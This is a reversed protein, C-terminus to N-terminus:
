HFLYTITESIEYVIVKYPSFWLGDKRRLDCTTNEILLFYLDFAFFFHGKKWMLTKCLTM